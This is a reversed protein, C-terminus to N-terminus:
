KGPASARAKKSRKDHKTKTALYVNLRKVYDPEDGGGLEIARRQHTIAEDILGNSFLALAVTDLEHYGAAKNELLKRAGLLALGDYRGADARDTLLGWVWNNINTGGFTAVIKAGLQAADVENDLIDHLVRYRVKLIAETPGRALLVKEMASSAISALSRGRKMDCISQVLELLGDIDQGIDDVISKNTLRAEKVKGVAMMARLHAIRVTAVKPADAVVPVLAMLAIQYENIRPNSYLGRTIFNALQVPNRGLIKTARVATQTALVRDKKLELQALYKLSHGRSDHLNDEILGDALGVVERWQSALWANNIDAVQRGGIALRRSILRDVPDFEIFEAVQQGALTSGIMALGAFLAGRGIM